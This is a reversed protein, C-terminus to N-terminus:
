VALEMLIAGLAEIAGALRTLELPCGGALVLALHSELLEAERIAPTYREDPAANGLNLPAERLTLSSGKLHHAAGFASEILEHNEPEPILMQQSHRLIALDGQADRLYIEHLEALAATNAM